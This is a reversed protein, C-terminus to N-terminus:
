FCPNHGILSASLCQDPSIHILDAPEHKEYKSGAEHRGTVGLNKIRNSRPSAARLDPTNLWFNRTVVGRQGAATELSTVGM